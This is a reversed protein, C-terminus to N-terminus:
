YTRGVRLGVPEGPEAASRLRVGRRCDCGGRDVPRGRRGALPSTPPEVDPRVCFTPSLVFATRPRRPRRRTRQDCGIGGGYSSIQRCCFCQVFRWTVSSA